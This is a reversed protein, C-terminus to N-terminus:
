WTKETLQIQLEGDTRGQTSCEVQVEQACSFLPQAVAHSSIARLIESFLLIGIDSLPNFWQKM